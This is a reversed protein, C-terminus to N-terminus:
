GSAHKILYDTTLYNVPAQTISNILNATAAGGQLIAQQQASGSASLANIVNGATGQGAAAVTGRANLDFGIQNLLANAIDQKNMRTINILDELRSVDAGYQGAAAAYQKGGKQMELGAGQLLQNVTTDYEGTKAQYEANARAYEMNALDSLKQYESLYTQNYQRNIEDSTVDMSGRLLANMAASSDYNGRSAEFQNIIRQNESLRYKYIEDNPDFEFKLADLRDMYEQMNGTPTLGGLYDQINMGALKDLYAQADGTPSIGATYDALKTGELQNLYNETGTGNDYLHEYAVAARNGRTMYPKYSEQTTLYNQQAVDIQKDATSSAVDAAKNAAKTQAIASIAAGGVGAGVIALPIAAPM